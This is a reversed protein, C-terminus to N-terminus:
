LCDLFLVVRKHFRCLLRSFLFALQLLLDVEVFKLNFSQNSRHFAFLSHFCYSAPWTKKLNLFVFFALYAFVALSNVVDFLTAVFVMTARENEIIINGLTLRVKKNSENIELMDYFWIWVALVFCPNRITHTPKLSQGASLIQINPDVQCNLFIATNKPIM